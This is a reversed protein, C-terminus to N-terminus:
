IKKFNYINGKELESFIVGKNKQYNSHYHDFHIGNNVIHTFKFGMEVIEAVMDQYIEQSKNKINKSSIKKIESDFTLVSLAGGKKLVRQSEKYLTFRVFKKTQIDKAHILDYLLIIDVSNDPFGIEWIGNAKITEINKLKFIECKKNIWDLPKKDKDIAYVKGTNNLALACPITYHGYGCAFDIIINGKKIGINEMLKKCETSEWDMVIKDINNSYIANNEEVDEIIFSLTKGLGFDKKIKTIIHLSYINNKKFLNCIYTKENITVNVKQFSKDDIKKCIPEPLDMM